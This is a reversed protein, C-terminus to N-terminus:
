FADNPENLVGLRGHGLRDGAAGAKWGKRRRGTTACGGDTLAPVGIKRAATRSYRDESTSKKKRKEKKRRKKEEIERKRENKEVREKGRENKRKDWATSPEMM